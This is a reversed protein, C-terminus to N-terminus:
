RKTIIGAGWTLGAGFAVLLVREGSKIKNACYLEDLAIAWSPASTNGYKHITKVVKEPCITFKKALADIIRENAQHPVLWSIEDLHLGSEKLCHKAAKDMQRVAHKFTEKGQMKIYHMRQDITFKSTPNRSGGAPVQILDALDGNAGLFISEIDFGKETSSIVAASAGDGFLICTNRDQYDVFTSLKEAGILLVNKYVGAEVFTKAISLGYLFGTCAVQMDFAAANKAGIKSQIIAATCPTMFDPTMTAVIILDIKSADVDADKLAKSAALYGLDSTAQDDAAIRREKMGTRTVIWEDSTDVIKELDRNSLVKEALYSGLGIIKAKM